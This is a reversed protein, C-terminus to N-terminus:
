EEAKENSMISNAFVAKELETARILKLLFWLGAELRENGSVMNGVRNIAQLFDVRLGNFM